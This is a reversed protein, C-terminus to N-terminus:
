FRRNRAEDEVRVIDADGCGGLGITASQAPAVNMRVAGTASVIANQPVRLEITPSNRVASGVAAAPKWRSGMRAASGVIESRAACNAM